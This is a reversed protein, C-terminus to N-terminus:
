VKALVYDEDDPTIKVNRGQVTIRVLGIDAPQARTAISQRNCWLRGEQGLKGKPFSCHALHLMNTLQIDGPQFVSPRHKHVVTFALPVKLLYCGFVSQLM